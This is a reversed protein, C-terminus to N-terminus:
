SCCRGTMALAVREEESLKEHGHDHVHATAPPPVGTDAIPEDQPLGQRRMESRKIETAAADIRNTEPEFVAGYYKEAADKSVYGCRVDRALADLDRDLPSGFGGGGGSRLIYADGAHLVQNLAKGNHFRQEQATGFRHIAVSNGFGSLGDELGWPKCKVRDMQSNFRIDHRAQVVQECGLGGRFRGAGGSDPRLAYREVLLPYKAEVQESPGNHTDGDNMAITANCGDGNHKAGWGGGILGGLYIYFSDDRPRRGNVRGVVLDAHHGAIIHGPIAPALAKFITDIITMPYTMWMRMAAPKLASVVRGPPLIIELARFQGDNIPLDLASTLCKFAVQCCSRGATEGSNYFGAVQKSVDTLDVKMRDGKVEVRVNIPVREGIRVGDDDMFSQAEYVGDPIERVRARTAAESHDMIAEIGLLVADRGYKNIMELFRREGTRVAAIQARFDGMAREPLRVNTKIVSILEENPEGKRYIKVIPMQLGESYIDTTAGDLTGGVDPWHAMCCSFAVVEGDHFIPVTFTMHNLHSGTIYADNTLLIDGPDLNEMGYHALKTKVTDSMGRIFMPLGLGISVTNGRADFLGVTFDLAEYIIMNYATRMLNTKMEETAAILGNRVIETTVPDVRHSSSASDSKLAADM